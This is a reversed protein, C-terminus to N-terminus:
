VQRERGREHLRTKPTATQSSRQLVLHHESIACTRALRRKSPQFGRVPKSFRVAFTPDRQLRDAFINRFQPCQIALSNAFSRWGKTRSGRFATRELSARDRQGKAPRTSNKRRRRWCRLVITKIRSGAEFM